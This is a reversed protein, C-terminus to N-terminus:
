ELVTGTIGFRLSLVELLTGHDVTDFAASLDLLVLASVKTTKHNPDVQNFTKTSRKVVFSGRRFLPSMAEPLQHM